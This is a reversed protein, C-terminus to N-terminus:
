NEFDSIQQQSFLRCLIIRNPVLKLGSTYTRLIRIWVRVKEHNITSFFTENWPFELAVQRIDARFTVLHFMDDFDISKYVSGSARTLRFLTVLFSIILFPSYWTEHLTLFWWCTPNSSNFVQPAKNNRANLIICLSWQRTNSVSVQVRFFNGDTSEKQCFYLIGRNGAGASNRTKM